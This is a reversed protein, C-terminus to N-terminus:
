CKYSLLSINMETSTIGRHEVTLPPPRYLKCRVVVEITQKYADIDATAFSFKCTYTSDINIDSTDAFTLTTTREGDDNSGKDIVYQSSAVDGDIGTWAVDTTAIGNQGYNMTCSLM